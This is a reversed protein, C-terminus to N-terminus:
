GLDFDEKRQIKGGLLRIAEDMRDYGRDVREAHDIVTEGDAGLGALVLAAGCRLDHATVDAGHLRKVGRIIATRGRIENQAGMRRLEAAHRFRNEFINETIVSTGRATSLLAFMQAQLDTPFAPYPRTELSLLERVREPASLRIADGYVTIACGCAELKSLLAGVLAPDTDTVTVTGRTIASAILYTGTVIRDPLIKHTVGHGNPRGFIRVTPTGAGQVSFGCANLFRALDAIEPECAAGSIVTEGEARVAALIANETAGVSPYDLDIAAGCLKRARACIRGDRECFTVGLRELAYRHLDIPRNGIECGGPYPACAEGFRSLLSGLLFVSSRVRHSLAEPLTGHSATSADIRVTDGSRAVTCGLARLIACMDEIDSLPPCSRLEVPESLLITAALIPLAANKAGHAPVEGSLRAGGTVIWKSM